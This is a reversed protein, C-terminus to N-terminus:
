FTWRTPSGTFDEAVLGFARVPRVRITANRAPDVFDEAYDTDYKANLGDLFARLDAPDTVIEATGEVIVPDLPDQISVSVASGAAVNRAKRSHLGSSFWFDSGDWWGWVPMLHPRGDPRVTAVWYDHSARLKPEAWSWPLLGAEAPRIGYGPMFPREARPM